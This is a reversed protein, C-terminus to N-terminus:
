RGRRMIVKPVRRASLGAWGGNNNSQKLGDWWAMVVADGRDPSRGLRDVVKEKAEVKIGNSGVEYTPACLDSVLIPDPPLCIQSGGEQSPDLAERFKWYAASRTNFFKLQKDKTRAMTPKVGMYGVADIDNAKLHGYATGGYGGGLDVVVRAQNRRHKVILGAVATGDPTDVGKEVILPAYWGDYRPALVTDDKGGQAVDVGIACMPVGVPPTSRWRNQAERIWSTPITQNAEDEQGAGFDGYLLQSRLPEPLSQLKARYEPTDRYPNDVLTAPIFTFSLPRQLEGNVEVPDPSDVWNPTGDVMIAYRLEGPVAPNSHGADLWPAFWELMWYGDSSRPPNSALVIRCRQGAPGRNWAMLSAIQEKQFEGAEDYGIFDRERGAHKVWDGVLQMGALKLSRGDEWSWAKDTGNFRATGGIIQRGAEELGDTQSSERRFIIGRTHEQSSLGVLMYSKGCGAAGGYLLIDAESLYAETQPGPLPVFRMKKTALATAKILEDKEGTSLSTVRELIDELSVTNEEGGM